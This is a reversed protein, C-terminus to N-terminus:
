CGPWMAISTAPGDGRLGLALWRTSNRRTPSWSGIEAHDPHDEIGPTRHGGHAGEPRLHVCVRRGALRNDGETKAMGKDVVVVSPGTGIEWGDSVSWEVDNM